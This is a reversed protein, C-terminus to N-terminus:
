QVLFHISSSVRQRWFLGDQLVEVKTRADERTAGYAMVGPLVEIEAIWRGEEELEFDVELEM